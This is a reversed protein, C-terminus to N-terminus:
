GLGFTPTFDKIGQEICGKGSKELKRKLARKEVEKIKRKRSDESSANSRKRKKSKWLNIM